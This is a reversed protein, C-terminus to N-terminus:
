NIIKWGEVTKELEYLRLRQNRVMTYAKVKRQSVFEIDDVRDQTRSPVVVQFFYDRVNTLKKEQEWRPLSSLQELFAPSSLEEYYNKSLYSVWANFDRARIIRNLEEVLRQIDNKTNDYVEQSVQSPDFEPEEEEPPPEEAAVAPSEAVPEEIEPPKNPEELTPVTGTEEELAEPPSACLTLILPLFVLPVIKRLM